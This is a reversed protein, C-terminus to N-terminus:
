SSKQMEDSPSLTSYRPPSIFLVERRRKNRRTRNGQRSKTIRGQELEGM